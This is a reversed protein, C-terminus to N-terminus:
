ENTLKVEVKKGWPVPVGEGHEEPHAWLVPYSPKEPFDTYLDTFAVVMGVKETAMSENIKDFV